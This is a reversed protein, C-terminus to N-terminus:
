EKIYEPLVVKAAGPQIAWAPNDINNIQMTQTNQKNATLVMFTQNSSDFQVTSDTDFDSSWAKGKSDVYTSYIRPGLSRKRFLTWTWTKPAYHLLARNEWTTVWLKGAARVEGTATLSCNWTAIGTALPKIQHIMSKCINKSKGRM